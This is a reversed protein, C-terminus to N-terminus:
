GVHAVGASLSIAHNQVGVLEVIADTPHLGAVVTTHAIVYENGGLSFDAVGKNAGLGAVAAVEASLVTDAAVPTYTNVLGGTLGTHTFDLTTGTTAGSVISTQALGLSHQAPNVFLGGNEAGTWVSLTATAGAGFTVSENVSTGAGLVLVPAVTLVGAVLAVAGGIPDTGVYAIDGAGTGLVISAGTGSLANQDGAGNLDVISGKTAGNYIYDTGSGGLINLGNYTVTSGGANFSNDGASIFVGGLTASADIKILSSAIGPPFAVVTPDLTDTIAGNFITGTTLELGLGFLESGTITVTALHNDTEALQSLSNAFGAGNSAFNVAADGSSTLNAPGAAAGLQLSDTGTTDQNNFTV